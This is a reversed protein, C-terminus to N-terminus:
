DGTVGLPYDVYITYGSLEADGSTGDIKLIGEEIYIWDSNSYFYGEEDELDWIM